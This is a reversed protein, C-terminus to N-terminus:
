FKNINILMIPRNGVGDKNITHQITLSNGTYM